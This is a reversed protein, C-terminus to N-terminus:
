AKKFIDIVGTLELILLVVFVVGILALLGDGGAPAEEMSTALEALESESLAALRGEIATPEVGLRALEGRVDQRALQTQISAMHADRVSPVLVGTEVVGAQASQMLGTNLVAMSLVAVISVRWQKSNM